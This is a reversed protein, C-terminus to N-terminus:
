AKPRAPRLDYMDEVRGKLQDLPIPVKLYCNLQTIKGQDNRSTDNFSLFEGKTGLNVSSGYDREVWYKDSASPLHGDFGFSRCVANFYSVLSENSKGVPAYFNHVENGRKLVPKSIRYSGDPNQTISTKDTVHKLEGENYCILRTIKGQDDRSTDNFSVFEGRAGLTVSDGYNLQVSYKDYTSSLHRDFGFSRCVASYYSALQENTKNMPAYPYYTTGGRKLVPKSIEFSGDPNQHLSAKDTIHKLEGKNYCTLITIKGLDNRSTDSFSIFEGKSGLNVSSGYDRDVTYKDLASSLHGDFGFSRCVADFYPALVENSKGLPAYFNLTENGRKLVPKYIQYSGDPNQTITSKDTVHKLDKSYYCSLSTIKGRDKQYGTVVSLFEGANGLQVTDSYTESVRYKDLGTTIWGDFGYYRCVSRFYPALTEISSNVPAYFSYTDAGRKMKPDSINYSGDPNRTVNPLETVSFPKNKGPDFESKQTQTQGNPAVPRSVGGLHTGTEGM